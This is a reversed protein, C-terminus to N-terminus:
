FQWSGRRSGGHKVANSDAPDDYFVLSTSAVRPWREVRAIAVSQLDFGFYRSPSAPGPIRIYTWRM